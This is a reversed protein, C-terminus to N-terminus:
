IIQLFLLKIRYFASYLPQYVGVIETSRLSCIEVLSILKYYSSKLYNKFIILKKSSM